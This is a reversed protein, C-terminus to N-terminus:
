WQRQEEGEEMIWAALGPANDEIWAWLNDRETGKDIKDRWVFGSTESVVIHRGIRAVWLPGDTCDGDEEDQGSNMIVNDWLYATFPDEFKSSYSERYEKLM